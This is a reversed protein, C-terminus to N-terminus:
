RPDDVATLVFDASNVQEDPQCGSLKSFHDLTSSIESMYALRGGKVLLLLNDFMDWILRSRHHITAVAILKFEDTV